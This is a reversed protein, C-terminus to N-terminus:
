RYSGEGGSLFWARVVGFINVWKGLGSHVLPLLFPLLIGKVDSLDKIDPPWPQGKILNNFAFLFIIGLDSEYGARGSLSLDHPTFHQPLWNSLGQWWKVVPQDGRLGCTSITNIVSGALAAFKFSGKPTFFLFRIRLQVPLFKLFMQILNM